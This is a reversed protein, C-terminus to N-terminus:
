GMAGADEGSVCGFQLAYGEAEAVSVNKFRETSERVIKLLTRANNQQDLTMQNQEATATHSHGDQALARSSCINTLVLAGLLAVRPISTTGNYVLTKIRTTM